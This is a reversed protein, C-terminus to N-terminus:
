CIYLPLKYTFTNNFNCKSYRAKIFQKLERILLESIAGIAFISLFQIARINENGEIRFYNGISISLLVALIIRKRKEM